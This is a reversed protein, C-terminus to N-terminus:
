QVQVITKARKIGPQGLYTDKTGIAIVLMDKLNVGYEALQNRLNTPTEVPLLLKKDTTGPEDALLIATYNEHINEFKANDMSKSTTGM